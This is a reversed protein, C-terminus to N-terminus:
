KYVPYTAVSLNVSMVADFQHQQVLLFDAM